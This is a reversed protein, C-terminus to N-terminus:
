NNKVVIAKKPPKMAEPGKTVKHHHQPKSVKVKKAEDILGLDLPDIRQKVPSNGFGSFGKM